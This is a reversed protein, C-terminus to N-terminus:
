YFFLKNKGKIEEKNDQKDDVKRMDNGLHDPM